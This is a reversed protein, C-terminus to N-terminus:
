SSTEVFIYIILVNVNIVGLVFSPHAGCRRGRAGGWAARRRVWDQYTSLTQVDTRGAGPEALWAVEQM